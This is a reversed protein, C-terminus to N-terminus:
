EVRRVRVRANVGEVSLWYTGIRTRRITILPSDVVWHMQGTQTQRWVQGNELHFVTTGSWGRFEGVHRSVIQVPGANTPPTEPLGFGEASAEDAVPATDGADPPPTQSTDVLEDFCALRQGADTLLSCAQLEDELDTTLATLPLSLLTLTTASKAFVRRM